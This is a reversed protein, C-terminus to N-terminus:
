WCLLNEAAFAAQAEYCSDEPLDAHLALPVGLAEAYRAFGGPDRAQHAGLTATAWEFYCPEISWAAYRSARVNGAIQVLDREIAEDMFRPWIDALVVDFTREPRWVRADAIVVEVGDLLHECLTVVRPDMEVVTVSRVGPKHKVAALLVGLGLGMVVVDGVAARYLPAVSELEAPSCSMWTTGGDAMLWNDGGAVQLGTFFGRVVPPLRGRVVRLSDVRGPRLRPVPVAPFPAALPPPYAAWPLTFASSSAPSAAATAPCSM